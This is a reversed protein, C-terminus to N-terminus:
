DGVGDHGSGGGDACSTEVLFNPDPDLTPTIELAAARDPFENLGHHQPSATLEDNIQGGAVM